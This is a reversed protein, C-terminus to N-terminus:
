VRTVIVTVTDTATNGAGDTVTLTLRHSATLQGDPVHLRVSGSAATLVTGEISSDWRYSLADAPDRDDSGTGALQFVAYAGADDTGESNRAEGDSPSTIAAQPAEDTPEPEQPDAPEETPAAETPSGSPEPETPTPSPTPSPPPPASTPVVVVPDRAPPRPLDPDVDPLRAEDSVAVAAFTQTTDPVGAGRRSTSVLGGLILVAILVGATVPVLDSADRPPADGTPWRRDLERWMEDVAGVTLAPVAAGPTHGAARRRAVHLVAEGFRGPELEDLHRMVHCFAAVTLSRAATADPASTRVTEYVLRVHRHYLIAFAARDGAIARQVLVGDPEVTSARTM